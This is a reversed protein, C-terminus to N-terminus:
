HATPLSSRASEEPPSLYVVNNEAFSRKGVPSCFPDYPPKRYEEPIGEHYQIISCIKLSAAKSREGHKRWRHCLDPRIVSNRLKNEALPENSSIVPEYDPYFRQTAYRLYLTVRRTDLDCKCRTLEINFAVRTWAEAGRKQCVTSSFFFVALTLYRIRIFERPYDM